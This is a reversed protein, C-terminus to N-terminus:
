KNNQVLLFAQMFIFGLCAFSFDDYIVRQLRFKDLHYNVSDLFVSSKM